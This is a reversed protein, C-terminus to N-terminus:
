ILKLKEAKKVAATKGTVELKRYINELHKKVTAGSVYLRAAIEERRLGEAALTLVELERETLTLTSETAHNLSEIFHECAKLLEIVYDDGYNHQAIYRLMDIIEPAYEAFSLILHDARGMDIAVVLAECGKEMGYLWYKVAGALIYNHLFGLYYATNWLIGHLSRGNPAGNKYMILWSVLGM